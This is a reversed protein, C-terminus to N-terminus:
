AVTHVPSLHSYPEKSLSVVAAAPCRALSRKILLLVGYGCPCEKRERHREVCVCICACTSVCMICGCGCIVFNHATFNVLVWPTICLRAHKCSATFRALLDYGTVSCCYSGTLWNVPPTHIYASFMYNCRVKSM